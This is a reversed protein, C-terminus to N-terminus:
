LDLLLVVVLNKTNQGVMLGGGCGGDNLSCCAGMIALLIM